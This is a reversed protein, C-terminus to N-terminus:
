KGGAKGVKRRVRENAYRIGKGKYPEPKRVARVKAAAQGVAQKSIGSVKIDTTGNVEFTIGEPPDMVVPHSYGVSLNLSQGQMNARWGVGEIKLARSYGETVGTVMNAILARVLGHYARHEPKDTPRDCVVEGDEVKVTIEVPLQEQLEGKPGKVTVVNGQVSCNVGDPIAIPLRGVRSM